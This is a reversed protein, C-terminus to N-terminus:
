KIVSVACSSGHVCSFTTASWFAGGKPLQAGKFPLQEDWQHLLLGTGFTGTASITEVQVIQLTKGPGSSRWITDWGSKGPLCGPVPLQKLTPCICVRLQWCTCWNGRLFLEAGSSLKWPSGMNRRQCVSYVSIVFWLRCSCDSKFYLKLCTKSSVQSRKFNIGLTTRGRPSRSCHCVWTDCPGVVRITKAKLEVNQM